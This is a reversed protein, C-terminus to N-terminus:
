NTICHKRCIQDGDDTDIDLGLVIYEPILCYRHGSVGVVVARKPGDPDYCSLCRSSKLRTEGFGAGHDFTVLAPAQKWHRARVRVDVQGDTTVM